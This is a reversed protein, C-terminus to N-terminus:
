ALPAPRDEHATGTSISRNPYRDSRHPQTWPATRGTSITTSRTPTCSGGCIPRTGSSPATWSSAAADGTWGEAIVNMRPTRVNRLVTRIGADALVTDFAATFDSGCDRIMFKVRHAREGFDM